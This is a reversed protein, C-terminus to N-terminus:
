HVASQHPPGAKMVTGGELAPRPVCHPQDIWGTGWDWARTCGPFSGWALSILLALPSFGATHGQAHRESAARAGESAFAPHLERNSHPYTVCQAWRRCESCQCGRLTLRAGTLGGQVDPAGSNAAARGWVPCFPSSPHTTGQSEGPGARAFGLELGVGGVLPVCEEERECVCKREENNAALQKNPSAPPQWHSPEAQEAIILIICM